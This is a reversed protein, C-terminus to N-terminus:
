HAARAAVLNDYKFAAVFQDSLQQVNFDLLGVAEAQVAVWTVARGVKQTADALDCASSEGAARRDSNATGSKSSWHNVM